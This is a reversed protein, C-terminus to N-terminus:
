VQLQLLQQKNVNDKIIYTTKSPVCKIITFLVSKRSVSNPTYYCAWGM